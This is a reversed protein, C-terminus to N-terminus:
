EGFNTSYAGIYIIQIINVSDSIECRYIGEVGGRRRNLRVM